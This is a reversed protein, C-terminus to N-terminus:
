GTNSLPELRLPQILLEQVVAAAYAHLDQRVGAALADELLEHFQDFGVSQQCQQGVAIQAAVTHLHLEEPLGRLHGDTRRAM